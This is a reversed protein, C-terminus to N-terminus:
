GVRKDGGEALESSGENEVGYAQDCIPQIEAWQGMNRTWWESCDGPVIYRVKVEPLVSPKDVLEFEEMREISRDHADSRVLDTANVRETM